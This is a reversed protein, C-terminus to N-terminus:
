AGNCQFLWIQYPSLFPCDDVPEVVEKLDLRELREIPAVPGAPETLEVQGEQGPHLLLFDALLDAQRLTNPDWLM